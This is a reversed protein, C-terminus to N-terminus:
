TRSGPSPRSTSGASRSEGTRMAESWVIRESPVISKPLYPWNSAAPLVTATTSVSNFSKTLFCAFSEPKM